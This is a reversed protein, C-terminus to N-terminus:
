DLVSETNPKNIAPVLQSGIATLIFGAVTALSTYIPMNILEASPKVAVFITAVIFGVTMGGILTSPKTKERIWSLIVAISIVIGYGMVIYTAGVISRLNYAVAFGVTGLIFLCVRFFTVLSEHKIKVIRGFDQLLVSGTSFLYTDASSMVSAFMTVIGLGILGVPLLTLLGQILALDTDAVTVASKIVVGIIFFLIGNLMYFLASYSLSRKVVSVNKAAYVRQWLDASNFGMTLGFIFLSVIGQLPMTGKFTLNTMIAHEDVHLVLIVVILVTLIIMSLFQAVDTKVVAKFGGVVLYFIIIATIAFLSWEYSWGTMASLVKSGGILQLIFLLAMNVLIFLASTLGTAQGYRESFYDSLTYYNDSEKKLKIAFPIFLLLGLSIGIFFSLAPFGFVYVWAVFTILAGTGTRSSVISATNAFVEVSRGGILFEESTEKKSARYGLYLVVVVYIGILAYDLM